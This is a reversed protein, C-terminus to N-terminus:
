SQCELEAPTGAFLIKGGHLIYARDSVALTEPVNHDTILVGISAKSLDAIIKQIDVM